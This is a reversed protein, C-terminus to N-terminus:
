QSCSVQVIKAEGHEGFKVTKTKKTIDAKAEIIGAGDDNGDSHDDEEWEEPFPLPNPGLVMASLRRGYVCGTDLGFTWRGVDLGRSASHGYVVSAPYCPLTKERTPASSLVHQEEQIQLARLAQEFGDCMTMQDNWYGSWPTGKNPKRTIRKSKLVSRMNMNVWPSTNQPVRRLIALEQLVRLTEIEENRHSSSYVPM